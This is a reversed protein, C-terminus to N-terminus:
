RRNHLDENDCPYSECSFGYRLLKIKKQIKYCPNIDFFFSYFYFKLAIGQEQVRRQYCHLAAECTERFDPKVKTLQQSVVTVLAKDYLGQHSNNCQCKKSLNLFHLHVKLLVGSRRSSKYNYINTKTYIYFSKFNMHNVTM